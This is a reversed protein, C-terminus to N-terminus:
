PMGQLSSATKTNELLILLKALIRYYWGHDEAEALCVPAILQYALYVALFNCAYVGFTFAFYVKWVV